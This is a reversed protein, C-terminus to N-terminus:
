SFLNLGLAFVAVALAVLPVANRELYVAWGTGCVQQLQLECERQREALSALHAEVSDVRQAQSSTALALRKLATTVTTSLAERALNSAALQEQYQELSKRIVGEKQVRALTSAVLKRNQVEAGTQLAAMEIAHQGQVAALREVTQRCLAHGDVLALLEDLQQKLERLVRLPDHPDGDPNAADVHLREIEAALADNLGRLVKNDTIADLSGLASEIVRDVIPKALPTLTGHEYLQNM